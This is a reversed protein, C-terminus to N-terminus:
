QAPGREIHVALAHVGVLALVEQLAGDPGEEEGEGAVHKDDEEQHCSRAGAKTPSKAARAVRVRRCGRTM